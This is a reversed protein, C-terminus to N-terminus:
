TIGTKETYDRALSEKVSELEATKVLTVTCGGFGGGTMRSGLVGRDPGLSRAIDVLIDLEPCSVEFDDRLSDHGAYMYQGVAEVDGAELAEATDHTREIEGIVHRARRYEIPDLEDELKELRERDAYRLSTLGLHDAADECARRRSAYAGDELAHAVNTNAILVSVDPDIFPILRTERTACDLLLLHDKRGMVSIFQDMIGCPVGAFDHEAQQCLLAKEEPSITSGAMAEVLTATAVELAASSSLGGGLPVDSHIFVDAGPCEIGVKKMGAIVGKVYNAWTPDGPEIPQALDIEAEADANSSILRIRESGDPRAAIVTQREIAMPLVFGDCYDVHEGILNVRGPAAVLVEPSHKFQQEFREATEEIVSTEM